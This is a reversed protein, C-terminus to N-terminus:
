DCKIEIKMTLRKTPFTRMEMMFVMMKMIMTMMMIMITMMMMMMMLVEPLFSPGKKTPYLLFTMQIMENMTMTMILILTRSTM